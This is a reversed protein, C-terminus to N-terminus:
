ARFKYISSGVIVSVKPQEADYNFLDVPDKIFRKPEFLVHARIYASIQRSEFTNVGVWLSQPSSPYTISEFPTTTDVSIRERIESAFTRAVDQTDISFGDHLEQNTEVNSILANMEAVQLANIVYEKALMSTFMDLVMTILMASMFILVMGIIGVDGAKNNNMKKFLSM